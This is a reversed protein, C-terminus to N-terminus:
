EQMPFLKAEEKEAWAQFERLAECERWHSAVIAHAVCSRLESALGVTVTATSLYAYLSSWQGGHWREALSSFSLNEPGECEEAHDSEAKDMADADPRGETDRDFESYRIRKRCEACQFLTDLTGDDLLTLNRM